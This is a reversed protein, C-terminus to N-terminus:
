NRSGGPRQGPYRYPLAGQEAVRGRRILNGQDDQKQDLASLRTQPTLIARLALTGVRGAGLM